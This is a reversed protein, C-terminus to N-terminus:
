FPILFLKFSYFLIFHDCQLNRKKRRSREIEKQYAKQHRICYFTLCM